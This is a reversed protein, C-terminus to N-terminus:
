RVATMVRGNRAFKAYQDAFIKEKNPFVSKAEGDVFQEVNQYVRYQQDVRLLTRACMEACVEKVDAPLPTGADDYGGVYVVTYLQATRDKLQIRVVDSPRPLRVYRDYVWYEAPDTTPDLVEDTSNDTVSTVSIIPPCSVMLTYRGGDFTQTVTQEDFGLPRRCYAAIDAIVETLMASVNFDYSTLFDGDDNETLTIRTMIGIESATPWGM